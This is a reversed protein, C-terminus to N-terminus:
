PIANGDEEEVRQGGELIYIYRYKCQDRDIDLYRWTKLM